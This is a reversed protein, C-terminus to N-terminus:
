GLNRRRGPRDRFAVKGYATGARDWGATIHNSGAKADRMARQFAHRKYLGHAGSAEFLRDVARRALMPAYGATRRARARAPLTMEGLEAMEKDGERGSSLVFHRAAEIEASSEAIRIQMAQQEAVPAGRQARAKTFAIFDELAGEACGVIVATLAMPGLPLYPTRYFPNAHLSAGPHNGDRQQWRTIIRHEPVFVDKITIDNSGTGCLGSVDWVDIIDYDSRPVLCLHHMPAGDGARDPAMCGIIGWDSHVVGSAFSWRGNLVYGGDVWEAKGSPAVASLINADPNTDWVERQAQETYMAVDFKHVAFVAAM